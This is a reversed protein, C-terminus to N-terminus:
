PGSLSRLPDAAGFPFRNRLRDTRKLLRELLKPQALNPYTERLLAAQGAVLPAAMSTGNWVAYRGGPVPGVVQEGPAAVDVWNGNNAFPALVSGGPALATVAIAETQAAPYDPAASAGNGAAAIVVSGRKRAQKIADSVLKSEIKGPVGFSMNIVDAGAADLIAEAVAFVSGEGDADLVRYSRIRAQPAVLAVLGAVFTGHGAAIGGAASETPDPDDDVYDWGPTVRGALAPHTADVGTDLVAVTRGAGTAIRHVDALQLSAVAPQDQWARSDTGLDLPAGDPWAHFRTDSVEIAYNPEAYVVGPLHAIRDALEKSKKPDLYRPDTPRVLYIGHSALVATDVAIPAAAAVGGITYGGATDVKVVVRTSPTPAAAARQATLAVAVSCAVALLFVILLASPRRTSEPM